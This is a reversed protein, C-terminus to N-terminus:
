GLEAPSVTARLKSRNKEIEGLLEDISVDGKKLRAFDKDIEYAVIDMKPVDLESLIRLIERSRKHVTDTAKAPDLHKVAVRLTVTAVNPEVEMQARGHVIVFPFDPLPSAFSLTACSAFMIAHTILRPM